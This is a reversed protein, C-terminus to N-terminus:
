RYDGNLQRVVLQSDGVLQVRRVGLEAAVKLGALAANYEAVNCTGPSPLYGAM